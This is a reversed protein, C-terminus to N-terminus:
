SGYDERISVSDCVDGGWGTQDNWHISEIKVVTEVKQTGKGDGICFEFELLNNENSPGSEAFGRNDITGDGTLIERVDSGRCNGPIEDRFDVSGTAGGKGELDPVGGPL